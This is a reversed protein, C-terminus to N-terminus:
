PRSARHSRRRARVEAAEHLVAHHGPCGSRGVVGVHSDAGLEDVHSARAAARGATGRVRAAAAVVRALELHVRSHADRVPEVVSSGPPPVSGAVSTSRGNGTGTFQAAVPLVAVPPEQLTDVDVVASAGPMILSPSRWTTCIPWTRTSSPPGPRGSMAVASLTATRPVPDTRERLGEAAHQLLPTVRPIAIAARATRASAPQPRSARHSAVAATRTVTWPCRAASPRRRRRAPRSRPRRRRAPAAPEPPRSRSARSAPMYKTRVSSEGRIQIFPMRNGSSRTQILSSRTTRPSPVPAQRVAPCVPTPAASRSGTALRRVAHELHVRSPRLAVAHARHGAHTEPVGARALM